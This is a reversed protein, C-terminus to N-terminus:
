KGADKAGADIFPYQPFVTKACEPCISQSFTAESHESIYSEFENWHGKNDRIKKCHPCVPLLGSMVKIRTLAGQLDGILGEKEEAIRKREVIEDQLEKNSRTLEATRETVRTELERNALRLRAEARKRAENL